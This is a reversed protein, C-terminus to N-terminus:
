GLGPAGSARPGLPESCIHSNPLMNDANHLRRRWRGPPGHLPFGESCSRCTARHTLWTAYWVQACYTACIGTFITCASAPGPSASTCRHASQRRSLRVGAASDARCAALVRLHALALAAVDALFVIGHLNQPLCASDNEARCGPACIRHRQTSQPM